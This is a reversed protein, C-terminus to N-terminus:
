WGPTIDYGQVAEITQLKEIANKHGWAVRRLATIRNRAAVHLAVMQEPKKIAMMTDDALRWEVDSPWPEIGQIALAASVAWNDLSALSGFDLQVYNGGGIDVGRASASAFAENVLLRKFAKAQDLAPAVADEDAMKAIARDTWAKFAKPDSFTLNDGARTEVTGTKTEGDWRVAQYNAPVTRTDVHVIRGNIKVLGSAPIIVFDM